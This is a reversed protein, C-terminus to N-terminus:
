NLGDHQGCIMNCGICQTDLITLGEGSTVVVDGMGHSETFNAHYNYTIALKSTGSGSASVYETASCSVFTVSQNFTIEVTQQTSHHDANHFMNGQITYSERGTEPTQHIWSSATYCGSAAYVGEAVDENALVVPKEYNMM